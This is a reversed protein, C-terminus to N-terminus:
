QPLLIQTVVMEQSRTFASNNYDYYIILAQNILECLIQSQIATILVVNCTKHGLFCIKPWALINFSGKHKCTIQASMKNECVSILNILFLEVLKTPRETRDLEPISYEM